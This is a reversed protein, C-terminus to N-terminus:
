SGQVLDLWQLVNEFFLARCRDCWESIFFIHSVPRLTEAARERNNRKIKQLRIACISHGDDFVCLDAYTIKAVSQSCVVLIM